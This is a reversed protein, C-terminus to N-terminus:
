PFLMTEVIVVRNLLYWTTNHVPYNVHLGVYSIPWLTTIKESQDM